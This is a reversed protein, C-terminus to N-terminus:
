TTKIHIHTHTHVIYLIFIYLVYNLLKNFLITECVTKPTIFRFSKITLYIINNDFITVTSYILLQTKEM